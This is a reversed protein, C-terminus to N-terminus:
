SNDTVRIQLCHAADLKKRVLRYAEELARETALVYLSVPTQEVRTGYVLDAPLRAQWGFMLFFPTYRTSAHVSTNYAMCVKPLQDEWDFPRHSTTALMDLLTRNSHEM